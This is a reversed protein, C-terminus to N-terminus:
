KSRLGLEFQVTAMLTEVRRVIQRHLDLRLGTFVQTNVTLAVFDSETRMAELSRVGGMQLRVFEAFNQLLLEEIFRLRPAHNGLVSYLDGIQLQLPQSRILNIDGTQILTAITGTVFSAEEFRVGLGREWLSDAPAPTDPSTLVRITIEREAAVMSDSHIIFQLVSDAAQLEAALANLYQHERQREQRSEWFADASLALLIGLIIVGLETLYRAVRAPSGRDSM